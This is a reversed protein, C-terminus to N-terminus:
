NQMAREKNVLFDVVALMEKLGGARMRDVRYKGNIVIEPVGAPKYSDVREEAQRIQNEVATSNFVDIFASKDVGYGAFFNALESENSLRKQEILIAAFLPYHIQEAVKLKRPMRGPFRQNIRIILYYTAHEAIVPLSGNASIYGGLRDPRDADLMHFGQLM